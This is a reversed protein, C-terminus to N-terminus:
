FTQTVSPSTAPAASDSDVLGLSIARAFEASVTAASQPHAAAGVMPHIAHCYGALALPVLMAVPWYTSITKKM